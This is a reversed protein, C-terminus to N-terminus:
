GEEDLAVLADLEALLARGDRCESDGDPDGAAAQADDIVEQMWQAARCAWDELDDYNLAM